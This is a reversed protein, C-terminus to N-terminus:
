FASIEVLQALNFRQWIEFSLPIELCDYLIRTCHQRPKHEVSSSGEYQKSILEFLLILLSWFVVSKLNQTAYTIHICTMFEPSKSRIGNRTGHMLYTAQHQTTM